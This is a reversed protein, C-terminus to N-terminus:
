KQLAALTVAKEVRAVPKEGHLGALAFLAAAIVAVVVVCSVILRSM